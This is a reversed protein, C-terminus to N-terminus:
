ASGATKPYANAMESGIEALRDRMRALELGIAEHRTISLGAEQANPHHHQRDHVIKRPFHEDYKDENHPLSMEPWGASPTPTWMM